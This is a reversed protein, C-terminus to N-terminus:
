QLSGGKGLNCTRCLTQLNDMKDSGGRCVPIVHDLHLNGGARGCIRCRYEDRRFVLLHKRFSIKARRPRVREPKPKPKMLRGPTAAVVAALAKNWSGFRRRVASVSVPLGHKRADTGSPSRGSEKLTIAWLDALAKLIESDSLRARQPILGAAEMALQMSGWKRAVTAGCLRAHGNIDVRTLTRKGLKKAIRRLEAIISDKDYSVLFDMEFAM